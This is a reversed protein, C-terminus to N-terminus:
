GSCTGQQAYGAIHDPQILGSELFGVSGIVTLLATLAAISFKRIM